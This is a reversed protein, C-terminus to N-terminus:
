VMHAKWTQIAQEAILTRHNGPAALEHTMNNEAIRERYEKSIENDLAHKRLGLKARRMRNIIKQYAHLREGDMKNRMPEAFIYDADLHVAIMVIKNGWQSTYPFPGTDDSHITELMEM